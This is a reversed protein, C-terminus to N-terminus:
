TFKWSIELSIAQNNGLKVLKKKYSYLQGNQIKGDTYYYAFINIKSWVQRTGLNLSASNNM